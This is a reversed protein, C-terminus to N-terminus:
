VPLFILITSCQRTLSNCQGVKLTMVYVDSTSLSDKIGVFYYMKFAVLNSLESSCFRMNRSGTTSRSSRNLDFCVKHHMNQKLGNFKRDIELFYM